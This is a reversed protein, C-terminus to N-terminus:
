KKTLPQQFAQIHSKHREVATTVHKLTKDKPTNIITLFINKKM